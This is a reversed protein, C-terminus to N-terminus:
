IIKDLQEQTRAYTIMDLYYKKMKDFEANSVYEDMVKQIESIMYQGANVVVKGFEERPVKVMVYKDKYYGRGYMLAVNANSTLSICNTDTRHHMKCHNFVEELSIQSDQAYKPVGVYRERDTRIRFMKGSEDFITGSEIDNNDAMNLARIFYYNDDDCLINFNEIDFLSDIM